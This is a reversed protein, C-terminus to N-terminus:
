ESKWGEGNWTKNHELHMYAKLLTRILSKDTERIDHVKEGDEVQFLCSWDWRETKMELDYQALWELVDEIRPIYRYNETFGRYMEFPSKLGEIAVTLMPFQTTIETIIGIHQEPEPMHAVRDGVKPEWRNQIEPVDCMLILKRDM